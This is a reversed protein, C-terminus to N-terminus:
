SGKGHVKPLRQLKVQNQHFVLHLKTAKSCSKLNTCICFKFAKSLHCQHCQHCHKCPARCVDPALSCNEPSRPGVCGCQSARPSAKSGSPLMLVLGAVTIQYTSTSQANRSGPSVRPARPPTEGRRSQEQRQKLFLETFTLSTCWLERALVQFAPVTCPPSPAGESGHRTCGLDQRQM